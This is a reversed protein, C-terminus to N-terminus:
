KNKEEKQISAFNKYTKVVLVKEEEKFEEDDLNSDIEWYTGKYFVKKNKIQGIGKENFFSDSIKVKSNLFKDLVKKRLFFLLILSILSVTALQWIGDTYDYFNSIIATIIFALGFWILIFSTVIAEFAILAVGIGLLIYIDFINLM